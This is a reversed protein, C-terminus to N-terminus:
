RLTLTWASPSNVLRRTIHRARWARRVPLAALTSFSTSADGLERSRGYCGILYDLATDRRGPKSCNPHAGHDLLWALGAPNV